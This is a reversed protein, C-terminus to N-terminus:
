SIWILYLLTCLSVIAVTKVAQSGWDKVTMGLSCLLCFLLCCLMFTKM